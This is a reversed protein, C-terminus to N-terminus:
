DKHEARVSEIIKWVAEEIRSMLQQTDHFIIAIDRLEKIAERIEHDKM